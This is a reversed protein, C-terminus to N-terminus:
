SARAPSQDVHVPEKVALSAAASPGAVHRVYEEAAGSVLVAIRAAFPVHEVLEVQVRVYNGSM